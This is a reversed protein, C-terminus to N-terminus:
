SVVGTSLAPSRRKRVFRIVFYEIGIAPLVGIVFALLTYGGATLGIEFLGEPREYPPIHREFQLWTWITASLVLWLIPYSLLGIRAANALHGGAAFRKWRSVWASSLLASVAVPAIALVFLADAFRSLSDVGGFWQFFGILGIVCLLAAALTSGAVLAARETM